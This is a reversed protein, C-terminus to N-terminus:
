EDGEEYKEYNNLDSMMDALIEAQIFIPYQKLLKSRMNPFEKNLIKFEEKTEQIHGNCKCIFKINNEITDVTIQIM